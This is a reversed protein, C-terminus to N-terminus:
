LLRRAGRYREKWYPTDLNQINVEGASSPAHIFKQGGLYIGVHFLKQEKIRFYVLDAPRLNGDSIPKGAKMQDQTTRPLAFGVAKKFVYLVYGSCDFGDPGTGGFRYPSGLLKRAAHLVKQEESSLAHQLSTPDPPERFDRGGCGILSFLVVSLLVLNRLSM